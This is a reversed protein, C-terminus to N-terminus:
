DRPALRSADVTPATRDLILHFLGPTRGAIVQHSAWPRGLQRALRELTGADLRRDPRTIVVDLRGDPLAAMSLRLGEGTTTARGARIAAAVEDVHHAGTLWLGPALDRRRAIALAATAVALAIAAAVSWVRPYYLASATATALATWQAETVGLRRPRAPDGRGLEFGFRCVGYGCLYACAALGAPAGDLVLAVGVTAWAASTTGDLLQLPVLPVGVWRSPFGAAAHVERYRVGRRAARGHCCAVRFCGIRGFLLGCGMGLTALDIGRGVPGGAIATAIATAGIAALTQEYFVLQEFGLIIQSVKVSLLLAVPPAFAVIMRMALGLELHIALAMAVALGVLYGVFGFAFYAGWRRPGVTPEACRSLALELRSETM